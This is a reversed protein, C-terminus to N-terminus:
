TVLARKLVRQAIDVANDAIERYDGRIALEGIVLDVFPTKLRGIAEITAAVDDRMASLAAVVEAEHDRAAAAIDFIDRPKISRGRYHVKKAIIEAVREVKTDIGLVDMSLYPDDTMEAGVIFDIEGIGEFAIKSFRAGDSHYGSPLNDLRYDHTGLDLYALLQPDHLFIDIDHSVRHDIQIMLATGGGFTWHDIVGTQRILSVADRFLIEWDTKHNM